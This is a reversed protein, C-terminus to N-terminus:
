RQVQLAARVAAASAQMFEAQREVSEPTEGKLWLGIFGIQMEALQLRGNRTLPTDASLREGILDALLRVIRGRMAGDFTEIARRRNERIHDLLWVLETGDGRGCIADALLGLPARMAKLYLSNRSPFHEYFTSRAVGARDVVDAVRIRHRDHKLFLENYADVLSQRTSNGTAGTTM